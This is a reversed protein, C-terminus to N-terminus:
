NWENKTFKIKKIIFNSINAFWLVSIVGAFILLMGLSQPLSISTNNYFFALITTIPSGITLICAATTVKIYKLGNYYSFVYLLLFVSSLLVWLFQASTTYFIVTFKNAFILYILIFLSGFFMRGFAVITGSLEKLVYKAITNEAAWFMTAILILIHGFSFQLDPRLFLYNGILLLIAGIFLGKTLKEKLFILAFITIYIFITKHIFGATAGTAMQLGKFYLLFPISGGVFGIGVLQIWNKKNLIKLEDFQKFLVIISFLFVAVIINKSFTFVGSDFGKVGYSNIFISFGSVLATFLVLLLGRKNLYM